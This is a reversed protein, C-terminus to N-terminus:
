DILHAVVKFCQDIKEIAEVRLNGSSGLRLGVVFVGGLKKPEGGARTVFLFAGFHTFHEPHMRNPNAPHGIAHPHGAGDLGTGSGGEEPRVAPISSIFWRHGLSSLDGSYRHGDTIETTLFIQPAARMGLLVRLFLAGVGNTFRQMEVARANKGSARLELGLRLAASSSM